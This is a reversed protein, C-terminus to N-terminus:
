DVVVLEWGRRECDGREPLASRSGGADAADAADAAGAAGV